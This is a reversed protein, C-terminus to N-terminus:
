SPSGVVLPGARGVLDPVMPKPWWDEGLARLVLEVYSWHDTTDIPQPLAKGVKPFPTISTLVKYVHAPWLASHLSPAGVDAVADQGSGGNEKRAVRARVVDM